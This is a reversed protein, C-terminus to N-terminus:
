IPALRIDFGGRHLSNLDSIPDTKQKHQFNHLFKWKLKWAFVTCFNPKFFYRNPLTHSHPLDNFFHHLYIVTMLLCRNKYGVNEGM